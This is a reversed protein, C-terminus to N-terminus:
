TYQQRLTSEQLHVPFIPEKISRYGIRLQPGGAAVQLIRQMDRILIPGRQMVPRRLAQQGLIDTTFVM